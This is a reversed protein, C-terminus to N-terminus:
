CCDWGGNHGSWAGVAEGTGQCMVLRESQQLFFPDAIVLQFLFDISQFLSHVRSVGDAGTWGNSGLRGVSCLILPDHLFVAFSVFPKLDGVVAGFISTIVAMAIGVTCVFVLWCIVIVCPYLTGSM